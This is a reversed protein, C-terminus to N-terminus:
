WLRHKRAFAGWRLEILDPLELPATHSGGPVVCLESRPLLGVLEESCRMPTFGDREGAIVLVPLDLQALASRASHNAVDHLLTAFVVPDMRAMHALYPLFDDRRIMRPNIETATALWYAFETPVARQWLERVRGEWRFMAGTLVPLLKAGLDTGGFTDLPREFAGCLALVARTREPHLAAAELVVQVGMSHGFLMAEAVDLADAVHWVDHAFQRITLTDRDDPLDSLGHGRYHFHVVRCRKELWPRLYRWIYGDCGIGDCLLVVPGSALGYQRVSLQVGDPTRV